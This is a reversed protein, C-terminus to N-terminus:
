NERVSFKDLFLFSFCLNRTVFYLGILDLAFCKWVVTIGSEGKIGMHVTQLYRLLSARNHDWFMPLQDEPPYKTCSLELTIEFCNTYHYNYDQM